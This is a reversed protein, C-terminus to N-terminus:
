YKWKDPTVVQIRGMTSITVNGQESAKNKPTLRVTCNGSLGTATKPIGRFNFRTGNCNSSALIDVGEYEQEFMVQDFVRNNDTTTDDDPDFLITLNGDAANLHIIYNVNQEIAKMQALKFSQAVRNLAGQCRYRALMGSFGAYSFGILIGAILIVMIVEVLTFGREDRLPPFPRQM